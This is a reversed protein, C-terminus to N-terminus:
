HCQERTKMTLKLCIECRKRTSRNNLQFLYINTRNQKKVDLLNSPYKRLEEFSPKEDTKTTTTTTIQQKEKSM